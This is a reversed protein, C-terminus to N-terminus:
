GVIDVFLVAIDQTRIQKLPEDNNSLEEVVNPSFYRALNAREREVEANNLLLRKTRWGNIALTTAVILFVVVEQIRGPLSPENPDVFVWLDPRDPIAHRIAVSMEPFEVPQYWVWLFAILWMTSTWVGIAILTRWSYALNAGALLFFFYIFGSFRYQIALPIAEERFPNPYVLAFTMLALDCFMLFLEARSRGVRGIWLQAWGILAFGALLALYYVVDWNQNTYILLPAIVALGVWRARIAMLLGERKDNELAEEVILNTPKQDAEQREFGEAFIKTLKTFTQSM